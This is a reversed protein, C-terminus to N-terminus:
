NIGIQIHQAAFDLADISYPSNHSKQLANPLPPILGLFPANIKAQLTAINEQLLPMENALSNAVWGAINLGRAKIAEQTLLAHNICGLKMGVVLIVPLGIQQVLDGLDEHHNLPVLFGGAGEIVLCDAKNQIDGLAQMIINLDLTIGKQAAALHPAVPMDLIYPSLNFQGPALQSAIRLTELDENLIHGSGDQYTGAVVPKFGIVKKGQERLKLILAGCVLTKGVETDTGTIFFGTLKTM